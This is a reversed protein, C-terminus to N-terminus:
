EVDVFKLEDMVPDDIIDADIVDEPADELPVIDEKVEGSWGDDTFMVLGLLAEVIDIDEGLCISILSLLKDTDDEDTAVSVGDPFSFLFEEYRLSFCSYM